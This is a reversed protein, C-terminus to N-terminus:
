SHKLATPSASLRNSRPSAHLQSCKGKPSGYRTLMLQAHMFESGSRKGPPLGKHTSSDSVKVYSGTASPSGLERNRLSFASASLLQSEPSSTTLV